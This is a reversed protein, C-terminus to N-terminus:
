KGLAARLRALDAEAAPRHPWGPPASRLAEEVDALAGERDGLSGRALGRNWRADPDRPQLALAADYDLIAAPADGKRWRSLGRNNFAGALRPDRRVAETYDEISGDLDGIDQRANGRNLYANAYAPDLRIAQDLDAIAGARDGTLIRALGRNNWARAHAPDRRLVEGFDEMAGALEGVAARANGRNNWAAPPAPDLRLSEGFDAIAGRRDGRADRVIGRGLYGRPDGPDLRIVQDYDALAGDLDGLLKRANGRNGYAWAFPIGEALAVGYEREGAARDGGPAHGEVYGRLLAGEWGPVGRLHERAGAWDDGHIALCARALRGVRGTASSAAVFDARADQAPGLRCFAELGRYLRATAAEPAAAPIADWQARAESGSGTAWLLLGRELRWDHRGPSAALAEGLWAAARGPDESRAARARAALLEGPGPDSAGGAAPGHA